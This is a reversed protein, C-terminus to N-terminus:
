TTANASLDVVISSCCRGPCWYCAINKTTRFAATGPRAASPSVLANAETAGVVGLLIIRYIIAPQGPGLRRLLAARGTMFMLM